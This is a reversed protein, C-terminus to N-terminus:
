TQLLYVPTSSATGFISTQTDNGIVQNAAAPSLVGAPKQGANILKVDGYTMIKRNFQDKTTDLLKTKRLVSRFMLWTQRNILAIDPDGGGCLTVAEDFYTMFTLGNAELTAATHLDLGAANVAQGSFIADTNLRYHLGAPQTADSGPDGNVLLDNVTNKVVLAYAQMQLALPDQIYSKVDLLVKDLTVKNEIIKLTEERDSFTAKYAAVADGINRTSPTGADTLRVTKQSLATAAYLAVQEVPSPLQSEFFAMLIAKKIPRQEISALDLLTLAM